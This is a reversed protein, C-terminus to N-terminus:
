YNKIQFTLRSIKPSSNKIIIKHHRCLYRSRIHQLFKHSRRTSPTLNSASSSRNRSQSNQCQTFRQLVTLRLDFSLLSSFEVNKKVQHSEDWQSVPQYYGSNNTAHQYQEPTWYVFGPVNSYYESAEYERGLPQFMTQQKQEMPINMHKVQKKFKSRRNQFWIKVLFLFYNSPFILSIRM